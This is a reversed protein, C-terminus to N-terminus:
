PVPNGVVALSAAAQATRATGSELKARSANEARKELYEVARPLLCGMLWLFVLVKGSLMAGEEYMLASWAVVGSDIEERDLPSTKAVECLRSIGHLVPRVMVKCSSIAKDFEAPNEPLPRKTRQSPGTLGQSLRPRGRPKPLPLMAPGNEPSRNQSSDTSTSRLPAPESTAKTPSAPAPTPLKLDPKAQKLPEMAM